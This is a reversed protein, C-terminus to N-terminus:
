GKIANNYEKYTDYTIITKGIHGVKVSPDCWLKNGLERARICFSIDEGYGKIPQFCTEYTDFCKALIETKVLLAGMGCAEVEFLHDPIDRVTRAGIKGDKNVDIFLSPSYPPRRACYLGCVMDKEHKILDLLLTPEFVMDSDLWLCYDSENQIASLALRERAEYVLSGSVIGKKVEGVTMLGIFSQMFTVDVEDMCPIAIFTKM